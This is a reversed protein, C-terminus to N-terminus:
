GHDPPSEPCRIVGRGRLADIDTTGLGLLSRLVEDTHEGLLPAPAAPPVLSGGMRLVSRPTPVAGVGPHHVPEFLDSRALLSDPARVLEDVTRYAGWVLRRGDMEHGADALTRATFWPRLLGAIVERHRYRVADDALDVDLAAELAAVAAATGTMDLLERWHRGTMAVVVLRRGDSTAFDCGFSGYVFNGDRQRGGGNAVVDAVYGLHAMTTVAVDALSLAVLQGRGTRARVREATLLGLAAHLGTLLDWAPLVHNVPPQHGTPGTLLPIGVESNVTYDLAPGGDSRGGVHVLILDPRHERLAGYSLWGQRPANTLVIGGGPGSGAVLSGVLERGEDAAIDVEVSRKGKNLGAWYLSRGEADLPHRRTDTAGGLPDVRIVDAGLQALAMGGSPGAVYTAIEVVRLGDLPLDGSAEDPAEDPHRGTV